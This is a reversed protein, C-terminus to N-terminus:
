AVAALAAADADLALPQAARWREVAAVSREGHALAVYRRGHALAVYRRGHGRRPAPALRLHVPAAGSGATLRADLRAFRAERRAACPASTGPRFAGPADRAARPPCPSPLPDQAM